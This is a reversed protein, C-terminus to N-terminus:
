LFEKGLAQYLEQLHVSITEVKAKFQPSGDLAEHEAVYREFMDAILHTRDLLEHKSFEDAAM